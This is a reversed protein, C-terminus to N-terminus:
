IQIGKALVRKWEPHRKLYAKVFPCWPVLQLNNAAIYQLTKEVIAAGVGHGELEPPVETHLLSMRDKQLEYEIKSKKGDVVLTIKYAHDTEFYAKALRPYRKEADWFAHLYGHGAQSMMKGRIGKMKDLSEKAFICYMKIKM